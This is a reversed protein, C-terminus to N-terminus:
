AWASRTLASTAAEIGVDGRRRGLELHRPHRPHAMNGFITEAGQNGGVGM